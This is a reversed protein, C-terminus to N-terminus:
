STVPEQALVIVLKGNLAAQRLDVDAVNDADMVGASVAERHAVVIVALKARCFDQQLRVAAKLQDAPRLCDLIIKSSEVTCLKSKCFLQAYRM